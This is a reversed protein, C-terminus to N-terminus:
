KGKSLIGIHVSALTLPLLLGSAPPEQKLVAVTESIDSLFMRQHFSSSVGHSAQVCTALSRQYLAWICSLNGERSIERSVEM